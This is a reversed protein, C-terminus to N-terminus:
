HLFFAIFIHIITMTESPILDSASCSAGSTSALSCGFDNRFIIICMCACLNNQNCYKYIVKM